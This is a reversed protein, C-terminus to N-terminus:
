TSDKGPFGAERYTVAQERSPGGTMAIVTAALHRGCSYQRDFKRNGVVFRAMSVCPPMGAGPDSFECTRNDPNNRM